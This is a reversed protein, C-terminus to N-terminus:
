IRARTQVYLYIFSHIFLNSKHLLYLRFEAPQSVGEPKLEAETYYIQRAAYPCELRKSKTKTALCSLFFSFFTVKNWCLQNLYHDGPM